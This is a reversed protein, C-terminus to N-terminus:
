ICRNAIPQAVFEQTKYFLSCPVPFLSCPVPFLSSYFFDTYRITMFFATNSM